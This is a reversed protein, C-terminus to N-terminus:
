LTMRSAFVFKTSQAKHKARQEKSKARQEKSKPNLYHGTTLGGSM